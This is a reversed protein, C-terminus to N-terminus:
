DGVGDEDGHSFSSVERLLGSGQLGLSFFVSCPVNVACLAEYIHYPYQVLLLELETLGLELSTEM